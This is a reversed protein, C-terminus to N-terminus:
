KLGLIAKIDKVKGKSVPIEVQPCGEMKLWYTSKFWPVVGQVKDLNVIYSKHVRLMNTNGVREELETLTGSYSLKENDTVIFVNGTSAYAYIIDNYNIFYITGAKEVPLKNIKVKRSDLMSDIRSTATQWEEPQYNKLRAVTKTIRDQEFPKLIYDIAGVEFAQVAFEDYATAFVIASNAAVKRLILAAELGNIDRLSIDLWIVNPQLKAALKIAEAANDAEGVVSIEPNFSLLYRLEDRAPSEDDVILSKLM